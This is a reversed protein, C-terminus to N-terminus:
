SGGREGQGGQQTGWAIQIEPPPFLLTSTRLGQADVIRPCFASCSLFPWSPASHAEEEV